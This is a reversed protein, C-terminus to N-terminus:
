DGPVLAPSVLQNFQETYTWEAHQTEYNLNIILFLTAYFCCIDLVLRICFGPKTFPNLLKARNQLIMWM